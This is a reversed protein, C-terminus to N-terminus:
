APLLKRARNMSAVGSQGQLTRVVRLTALDGATEPHPAPSPMREEHRAVGNEVPFSGSLEGSNAIEAHAAARTHLHCNHTTKTVDNAMNLRRVAGDRLNRRPRGAGLGIKGLSVHINLSIHAQRIGANPKAPAIMHRGPPLQDPSVAFAILVCPAIRPM